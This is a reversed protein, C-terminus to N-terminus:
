AWYKKIIWQKGNKIVAKLMHRENKLISESFCFLSYKKINISCIHEIVNELKLKRSGPNAIKKHDKKAVGV